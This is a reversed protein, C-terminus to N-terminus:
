LQPYNKWEFVTDDAKKVNSLRSWTVRRGPIPKAPAGVLMANSMDMNGNVLAGYGVVNDDGIAAGKMIAAHKSVWVHDGIYVGDPPNTRRMTDLDIM